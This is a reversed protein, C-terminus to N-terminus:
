CIIRKWIERFKSRRMRLFQGYLNGKAEIVAKGMGQVGRKLIIDKGARITAGSVHGTVEVNGHADITMGSEVDGFIKVDGSFRINNHSMDLNGHHEYVENINIEGLKYEIKGTISAYYIDSNEGREIGRGRLPSLERGKKPVLIKGMINYGFEGSTCHIYRAVEMGAKVEEFLKTNLYDVSGDELIEPKFETKTDFLIEYRGNTGDIHNKGEAIKMPLFIIKESVMEKIRDAKIGMRIGNEDLFKMIDNEDYEMGSQAPTIELEAKMLDDSITLKFLETEVVKPM